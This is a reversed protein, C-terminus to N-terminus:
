TNWVITKLNWLTCSQYGPASVWLGEVVGKLLWLTHSWFVNASWPALSNPSGLRATSSLAMRGSPRYFGTYLVSWAHVWQLPLWGRSNSDIGGVTDKDVKPKRLTPQPSPHFMQFIIDPFYRFSSGRKVRRLTSCLGSQHLHKFVNKTHDVLEMATKQLQNLANWHKM